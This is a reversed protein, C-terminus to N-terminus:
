FKWNWQISEAVSGSDKMLITSHSQKWNWQISEQLLQMVLFPLPLFQSEIGNFPNQSNLPFEREKKLCKWNWQISELITWSYPSCTQLYAKLEMSHIGSSWARHSRNSYLTREIGNFPNWRYHVQCAVYIFYWFREIGNFPNKHLQIYWRFLYLHNGKLEM